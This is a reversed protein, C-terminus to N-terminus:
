HVMKRHNINDDKNDWFYGGRHLKRYDRLKHTNYSAKLTIVCQALFLLSLLSHRISVYIDFQVSLSNISIMSFTLWMLRTGFKGDFVFFMVCLVFLEFIAMSEANLWLNDNWSAYLMASLVLITLHSTKTKVAFCGAIAVMYVVMYFAPLYVQFLPVIM